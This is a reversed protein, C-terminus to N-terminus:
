AEHRVDEAIKLLADTLGDVDYQTLLENFEGYECLEDLLGILRILKTTDM